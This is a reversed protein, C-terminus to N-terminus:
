YLGIKRAQHVISELSLVINILKLILGRGKKEREREREFKQLCSREKKDNRM